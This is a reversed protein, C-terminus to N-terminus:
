SNKIHVYLVNEYFLAYVQSLRAPAFCEEAGVGHLFSWLKLLVQTAGESMQLLLVRSRATPCTAYGEVSGAVCSFQLPQHKILSRGLITTCSLDGRSNKFYLVYCNNSNFHTCFSYLTRERLIQAWQSILSTHVRALLAFHAKRGKGVAVKIVSPYWFILELKIPIEFIEM